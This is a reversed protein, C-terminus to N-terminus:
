DMGYINQTIERFEARATSAAALVLLPVVFLVRKM